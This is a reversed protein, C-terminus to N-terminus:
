IHKTKRLYVAPESAPRQLKTQLMQEVEHNTKHEELM